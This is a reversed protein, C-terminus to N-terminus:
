LNKKELKFTARYRDARYFTKVSEIPLNSDSFVIRHVLLAPSNQKVSLIKAMEKDFIVAELIEEAHSMRVGYEKKLVDYLSKEELRFDSLNPYQKAPLYANEFAMPLDDALRLRQLHFVEEGNEIGLERSITEDSKELQALLLRSSPKLGLEQMEETFGVLNRTHIDLKRQSVFAGIGREHYILGEQKLTNLAQRVTMRSVKFKEALDRESPFLDGSGIEERKIKELLNQYIQEYIPISSNRDLLQDM